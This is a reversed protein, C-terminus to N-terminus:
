KLDRGGTHIQRKRHWM